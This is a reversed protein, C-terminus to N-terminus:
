RGLVRVRKGFDKALMTCCAAAAIGDAPLPIGEGADSKEIVFGVKPDDQKILFLQGWSADAAHRTAPTTPADDDKDDTDDELFRTLTHPPPM